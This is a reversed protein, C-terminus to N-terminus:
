DSAEEDYGDPALMWLLRELEDNLAEVAGARAPDTVMPM